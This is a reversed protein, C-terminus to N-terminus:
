GLANGPRARWEAFWFIATLAALVPCVQAPTPHWMWMRLLWVPVHPHGMTDAQDFSPVDHAAAVLPVVVMAVAVVALIPHFRRGLAGYIAVALAAAALAVFPLPDFHHVLLVAGTTYLAYAM